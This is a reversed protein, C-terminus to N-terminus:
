KLGGKITVCIAINHGGPCGFCPYGAEEGGLLYLCGTGDSDLLVRNESGSAPDNGQKEGARKAARPMKQPKVRKTLEDYRADTYKDLSIQLWHRRNRKSDAM